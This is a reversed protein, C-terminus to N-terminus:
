KAARATRKKGLLEPLLWNLILVVACGCGIVTVVLPLSTLWNLRIRVGLVSALKFLVTKIPSELLYLVLTNQGIFSIVKSCGNWKSACAFLGYTGSAVMGLNLLFRHHYENNNVDLGEGPFVLVCITCVIIYVVVAILGWSLKFIRQEYRRLVMGLLLYIQVVLATNIKCVNLLDFEALVLGGICAVVCCVCLQGFHKCWKHMFFLLLEALICCPVYWATKGTLVQLVYILWSGFGHFPVLLLQIGITLVLWPVIIRRLLYKLFDKIRGDRPNFLYGSIVFFLPIKVPSTYMFFNDFGANSHGYIVFVLALARLADLWPKRKKDQILIEAM